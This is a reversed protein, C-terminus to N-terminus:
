PRLRLMSPLVLPRLDWTTVLPGVVRDGLEQLAHRQIPDAFM